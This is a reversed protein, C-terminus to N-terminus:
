CFRNAVKILEKTFWQYEFETIRTDTSSHIHDKEHGDFGASILIVDPAFDVLRPILSESITKRWKSSSATGPVLPLNM